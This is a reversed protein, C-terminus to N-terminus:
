DDCQCGWAFISIFLELGVQVYKRSVGKPITPVICPFPLPIQGAENRTILGM